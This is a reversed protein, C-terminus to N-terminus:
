SVVQQVASGCASARMAIENQILQLVRRSTTSKADFIRRNREKWINWAMYMMIAARRSKAASWGIAVPLDRVALLLRTYLPTAADYIRLWVSAQSQAMHFSSLLADEAVIEGSVGWWHHCCCWCCANATQTIPHTALGAGEANIAMSLRANQLCSGIMPRSLVGEPTTFSTTKINHNYIM